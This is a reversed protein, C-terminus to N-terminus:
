GKIAIPQYDPSFKFRKQSVNDIFMRVFAIWKKVLAIMTCVNLRPLPQFCTYFSGILLTVVLLIGLM